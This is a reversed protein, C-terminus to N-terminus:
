NSRLESLFSDIANNVIDEHTGDARMAELADNIPELLHAKNMLKPIGLYNPDRKYPPELIIFDNRHQHLWDNEAIISELAVRGPSILVVDVRDVTLMRMQGARDATEIAAFVGSARAAEFDDGYSSGRKIALRRGQLSSLGDFKFSKERTTVLVLEDFYMPISYDWSKEREASKSFGIIAGEGRESTIFARNWPTLKYTFEIGTRKTVEALLDVMIGKPEHNEDLWNKPKANDDGVIQLTEGAQASALGFFLLFIVFCGNKM